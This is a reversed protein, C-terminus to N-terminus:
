ESEECESICIINSCRRIYTERMLDDISLEKCIFYLFQICAVYIMYIYISEQENTTRM